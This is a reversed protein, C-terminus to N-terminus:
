VDTLLGANHIRRAFPVSSWQLSAKQACEGDSGKPKQHSKSRLVKRRQSRNILVLCTKMQPNSHKGLEALKMVGPASSTLRRKGADAGKPPSADDVGGVASDVKSLDSTDASMKPRFYVSISLPKTLAISRSITTLQCSRTLLVNSCAFVYWACVLTLDLYRCDDLPQRASVLLGRHHHPTDPFSLPQHTLSSICISTVPFHPTQHTSLPSHTRVM